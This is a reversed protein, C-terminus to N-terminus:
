WRIGMSIMLGTFEFEAGPHVVSTGSVVEPDTEGYDRSRYLYGLESHFKNVRFRVGLGFTRHQETTDFSEDDLGRTIAAVGGGISTTVFVSGVMDNESFFDFEPEVQLRLGLAAYDTTEGRAFTQGSDDTSVRDIYPGIRIPIRFNEDRTPRMTLHGFVGFGFVDSSSFMLPNNKAGLGDDVALAVSLGSGTFQGVGEVSAGVTQVGRKVKGGPAAASKASLDGFASRMVLHGGPHRWADRTAPEPTSVIVCSSLCAASILFGPLTYEFPCMRM